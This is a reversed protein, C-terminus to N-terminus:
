KPMCQEVIKYILSKIEAALRMLEAREVGNWRSEQQLREITRQTEALTDILGDWSLNRYTVAVPKGMLVKRAYESFGRTTTQKALTKITEYEEKDCTFNIILPRRKGKKM